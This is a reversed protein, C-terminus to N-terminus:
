RNYITITGAKTKSWYIWISGDSFYSKREILSKFSTKVIYFYDGNSVQYCNLTKDNWAIRESKTKQPDYIASLRVKSTNDDLFLDYTGSESNLTIVFTAPYNNAFYKLTSPYHKEKINKTQYTNFNLSVSQGFSELSCTMFTLTLIIIFKM